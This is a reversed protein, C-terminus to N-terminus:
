ELIYSVQANGSSTYNCCIRAMHCRQAIEQPQLHHIFFYYLTSAAKIGAMKRAAVAAEVSYLRSDWAAAAYGM